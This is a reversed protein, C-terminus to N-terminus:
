AVGKVQPGAACWEAPRWEAGPSVDAGAHAVRGSGGFRSGRIVPYWDAMNKKKEFRIPQRPEMKSLTTTVAIRM